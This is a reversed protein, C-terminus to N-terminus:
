AKTKQRALAKAKKAQREANWTDFDIGRFRPIQERLEKYFRAGWAFPTQESQMESEDEYYKEEAKRYEEPNEFDDENPYVLGNDSSSWNDQGEEEMNQVLELLEDIEDDGSQIVANVLAAAMGRDGNYGYQSVDYIKNKCKKFINDIQSLTLKPKLGYDDTNGLAKELSDIFDSLRHYDGIEETDNESYIPGKGSLIWTKIMAQYEPKPTQNSNGFLQTVTKGDGDVGITVHPGNKPDRLSYVSIQNNLMRNIYDGCCHNMLNGEVLLDNKTTIRQITWGEQAPNPKNTKPDIWHPGFVINEPNITDYIKGEGKAAQEEHWLDSAQVAQEYSYSAINPQASNVWDSIESFKRGYENTRQIIGRLVDQIKPDVQKHHRIGLQKILQIYVWQSYNKNSYRGIEVDLLDKYPSVQEKIQKTRVQGLEKPTLNPNNKLESFFAPIKSQNSELFKIIEPINNQPVGIQQLREEISISFKLVQYWNRALKKNKLGNQFAVGDETMYGWRIKCEPFEQKLRQFMKTAIGKRRDEQSVEVMRISVEDHYESFNLYGLVIMSTKDYARITGDMQEHHFDNIDFQIGINDEM